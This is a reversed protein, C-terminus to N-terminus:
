RPAGARTTTTTTPRRDGDDTATPRRDGHRRREGPPRRDHDTATTPETQSTTPIGAAAKTFRLTYEVGTATNVLTIPQNRNVTIAHKGGAFEGGVVSIKMTKPGVALLQFWLDGAKFYQDVGVAQKKGNAYVM